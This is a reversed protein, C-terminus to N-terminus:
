TIARAWVMARAEGSAIARAADELRLGPLTAFADILQDSGEAGAPIVLAPGGLHTLIWYRGDPRTVVDLRTLDDLSVFAGGDPAFYGVQKEDVQVVGVARGPASLRARVIALFLFGAGACILIAAVLGLGLSARDVARGLLHVGYLTLGATVAVERWRWLVARAEPRLFAM